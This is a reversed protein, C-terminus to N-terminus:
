KIKVIKAIKLNCWLIVNQSQNNATQNSQEFVDKEGNSYTVSVVDSKQLTFTPGDQNSFKKYKVETSTIELIKASIVDSSKTLIIDQANTIQATVILLVSLVASKLSSKKM